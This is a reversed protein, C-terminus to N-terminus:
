FGGRASEAFKDIIEENFLNMLSIGQNVAPRGSTEKALSNLMMPIEAPFM